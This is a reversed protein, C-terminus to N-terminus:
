TPDGLSFLLEVITGSVQDNEVVDNIDLQINLNYVSNITNLRESTISMGRSQHSKEKKLITSAKRGIGNDKIIVKFKSDNIYVFKIEVYGKLNNLHYIGHNIANEIFPQLLIPPIQISKKIDPSIIFKSEFKDDFRMHEMEVYLKLLKIEDELSIFRNKSSDLIGRILRSFTTLYKDAEVSQNTQIFYQISGLANFIFHPNMQGQLASLKLTSIKENLALRDAEKNMVYESYKKSIFFVLLLALLAWMIKKGISLLDRNLIVDLNTGRDNLNPSFFLNLGGYDIDSVSIKDEYRHTNVKQNSTLKILNKYYPYKFYDTITYKIVISDLNSNIVGDKPFIRNGNKYYVADNIDLQDNEEWEMVKSPDIKCLGNLTGFYLNGQNDKTVAQTNFERNPLGHHEFINKVINFSTDIVNLGNFTSIWLHRRNDQIASATMNDTLGITEDLTKIVKQSKPDIVYVGGGKSCFIKKKNFPVIMGVDDFNIKTESNSTSSFEQLVEFKDNTLFVGNVTGIWYQNETSDYHVCRMSPLATNHTLYKKSTTNYVAIQGISTKRNQGVFIIEEKNIFDFDYFDGQLIQSTLKENKFDITYLDTIDSNNYGRSYFLNNYPNLKLQNIGVSQLARNSLIQYSKQKQSDVKFYSLSENNFYLENEYSCVGMIVNGFQGKEVNPLKKIFTIGKRKFSIIKVGNFGVVMWKYFADDTYIDKATNYNNSVAPCHHIKGLTDLIYYNDIFFNRNSYAAVINGKKDCSLFVPTEKIPISDLFQRSNNTLLYVSTSTFIYTKNGATVQIENLLHKTALSDLDNNARDRNGPYNLVNVEGCPIYFKRESDIIIDIDGNVNLQVDSIDKPSINKDLLSTISVPYFDAGDYKQIGENFFLYFYGHKDRM